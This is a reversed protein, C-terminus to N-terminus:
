RSDNRNSRISTIGYLGMTLEQSSASRNNYRRKSKHITSNRQITWRRGGLNNRFDGHVSGMNYKYECYRSQYGFTVDNNGGPAVLPDFYLEKSKIEQEGLQAFSPWAYELKDFRQMHKPIGQQYATKPLVTMLGIVYGHEEFRRKFGNVSGASVGHGAM